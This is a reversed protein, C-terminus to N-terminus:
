IDDDGDSQQTEENDTRQRKNSYNNVTTSSTGDSRQEDSSLVASVTIKLRKATNTSSVVSLTDTQNSTVSTGSDVVNQAM